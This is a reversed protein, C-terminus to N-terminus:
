RAVERPPPAVIRPLFARNIPASDWVRATSDNSATVVRRGDPSFAASGVWFTHGKLTAM